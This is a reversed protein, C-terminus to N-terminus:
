QCGGGSFPIVKTYTATTSATAGGAIGATVSDGVVVGGPADGSGWFADFTGGAGDGATGSVNGFPGKLSCISNGNSAGYQVGLSGGTGVATNPGGGGTLYVGARGHSDVALGVSGTFAFGPWGFSGSLGFQNTGPWKFSSSYGNATDCNGSCSIPNGSADTGGGGPGPAYATTTYNFFTSSSNITFTDNNANYQVQSVDTHGNVWDGGNQGCEQSNSNQDVSEAGNGADNFYVCDLGTPDINKLPNNQGYGYLNLSQPNKQDAYVLGSPDPSLFRGMSSAYYRAGFYDNGSESDREKGTFHHETADPANGTSSLGNGFPLSFSSSVYGNASVEVRKTGLWDTLAFYTDSGGYTALLKGEAFINTHMWNGAGNAEAFQEGGPGLVYSNTLAFGNASTPASCTSGSAPWGAPTGRAVRNGEAPRPMTRAAPALPSAPHAALPM